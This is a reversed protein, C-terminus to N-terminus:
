PRVASVDRCQFDPGGVQQGSLSGIGELDIAQGMKRVNAFANAAIERRALQAPPSSPLM